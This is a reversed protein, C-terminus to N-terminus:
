NWADRYPILIARDNPRDPPNLFVRDKGGYKYKFPKEIPIIPNMSAIKKSDEGTRNDMPHILAKKLDKYKKDRLSKMGDVKSVNYINHLETRVIRAVRWEEVAMTENVKDIVMSYPTKMIIAQTLSRQIAARLSSNYSEISTQFQNILLNKNRDSALVIDVPIEQFIGAFEKNFTGVEKVLDESSQESLMDSGFVLETQISGNMAILGTEIQALTMKLQAETFSGHRVSLLRERIARRAETYLKTIRRSQEMELGTVRRIHREAIGNFQVNEIFSM